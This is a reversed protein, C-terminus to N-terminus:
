CNFINYDTAPIGTQIGLIRAMSVIQGRHFTGHNVIHVIYEYRPQNNQAWPMSLHLKELLEGESFQSFTHVMDVSQEIITTYTDNLSPSGNNWTLQSLDQQTIFALWFKQTRAIHQLTFDISPFSSSISETIINNDITKLWDIIRTNSWLNFETYHSILQKLAM